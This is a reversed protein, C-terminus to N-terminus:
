GGNGQRLERWLTRFDALVSHRGLTLMALAYSTMGALISLGLRFVPNADHLAWLIALVVAAMFLTGAAIRVQSFLVDRLRVNTSHRTFHVSGLVVAPYVLMWVLCIGIMGGQLGAVYFAPPFLFFSALTIKFNLDPRGIANLLAPFLGGFAKTLGALCLLQFPLVAPRWKEGLLLTLGDEAVLAMGALAPFALFGLLLLVRVFWDRLRAPENQLRCFAPYAVKAVNATLKEAPLSILQFALAYYGLMDKDFRNVFAYDINTYIYWLFTAMSNHIGFRFLLGARHSLMAFRPRWGSVWYYAVIEMVRRALSGVVLSWYGLGAIALGLVLVSQAVSTAVHIVSQQGLQLQRDLLSLPIAMFPMMVLHLSLVRLFLAFGPREFWAEALDATAFLLGYCAVGFLTTLTFAEDIDRRELNEKQILAKSMGAEVFMDALNVLMLGLALFAYDDPSLFRAILLTAAWVLVQTGWRTLILFVGGRVVQRKLDGAAPAAPAAELAHDPPPQEM